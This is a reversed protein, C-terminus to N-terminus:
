GTAQGDIESRGELLDTQKRWSVASEEHGIEIGDVCRGTEDIQLLLKRRLDISGLLSNVNKAYEVVLTGEFANGFRVLSVTVRSRERGRSPTLGFLPVQSTPKELEIQGTYKGDVSQFEIRGFPTEWFGELEPGSALLAADGIERRIVHQKKATIEAARLSEEEAKKADKIASLVGVVNEHHGKQAVAVQAHKQAEDHFGANMLKYALNGESITEGLESARQYSRTAMGELGLKAYSVGLNNWAMGSREDRPINTYHWMSLNLSGDEDYRRALEFRHSSDEPRLNTYLESIAKTIEPFDGAQSVAKMAYVLACRDEHNTQPITLLLDRMLRAEASGLDVASRIADSVTKMDKAARANALHCSIAGAEDGYHKLAFALYRKLRSNEPYAAENARVLALNGPQGVWMHTIESSSQWEALTEPSSALSSAEFAASIAAASETDKKIKALFYEREYDQATWTPLPQLTESPRNEPQSPADEAEQVDRAPRHISGMQKIVNRINNCAPGLAAELNVNEPAYTEPYIGNLDSPLHLTTDRPSILFTRKRGLRGIFLGLEFIVNDRVTSVTQDRIVTMDDPACIFVAFDAKDLHSELAELPFHSPPFIGQTWIASLADRDLSAQVARAVDLSEVSSGIFLTPKTM